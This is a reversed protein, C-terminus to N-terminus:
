ERKKEFDYYGPYGVVTINVVKKGKLDFFFNPEVIMACQNELVAKALVKEKAQELTLGKLQKRNLSIPRIRESGPTIKYANQSVAVKQVKLANDDYNRNTNLSRKSGCSTLVIVAAFLFLLKKM